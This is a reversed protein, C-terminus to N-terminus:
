DAKGVSMTGNLVLGGYVTVRTNPQQSLDMDGNVTVNMLTSGIGAITTGTFVLLSGGTVTANALTCRDLTLARGSSVQLNGNVKLTSSNSLVMNGGSTVSQVTDSGSAHTVAVGSGLAPIVVDDGAAPLRNLDWNSTVNWSGGQTNIWTITAPLTRDELAELRLPLRGTRLRSMAVSRSTVPSRTIM